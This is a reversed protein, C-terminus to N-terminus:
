SWMIENKNNGWVEVIGYWAFGIAAKGPPVSALDVSADTYLIFEHKNEQKESESQSNLTDSHVYAHKHALVKKSVTQIPGSWHSVPIQNLFDNAWKPTRELYKRKALSSAADNEPNIQAYLSVACKM